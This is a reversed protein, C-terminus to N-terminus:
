NSQVVPMIHNLYELRELRSNQVDDKIYQDKKQDNLDKNMRVVVDTTVRTTIVDVVKLGGFFIAFLLTATSVVTAIMGRLESKKITEKLEQEEVKTM